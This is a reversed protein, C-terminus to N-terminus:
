LSRAMASFKMRKTASALESENNMGNIIHMSSSTTKARIGETVRPLVVELEMDVGTGTRKISPNDIDEVWKAVAEPKSMGEVFQMHAIYQRKKLHLVGCREQVTLSM